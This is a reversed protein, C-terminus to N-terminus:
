FQRGLVRGVFADLGRKGGGPVVLVRDDVEIWETRARDFEFMFKRGAGEGDDVQEAEQIGEDDLSFIEDNRILPPDISIVRAIARISAIYVVVSSGPVLSNAEGGLNATFGAYARPWANAGSSPRRNFIVMGKRLKTSFFPPTVTPCNAFEVAKAGNAPTNSFDDQIRIGNGNESGTEGGLGSLHLQLNMVSAALFTDLYPEQQIPVVGLTGAEGAFLTNVPLRLRRVSVVKVLKWECEEGCMDSHGTDDDHTIKAGLRKPPAARMEDASDLSKSLLGSLNGVSPSLLPHSTPTAPTGEMSPPGSTRDAPPFPGILLEDDITIKGYKVHGGVVAGGNGDGSSHAPQFGYIEELHFLTSLGGAEETAVGHDGESKRVKWVAKRVGTLSNGSLPEPINGVVPAKPPEPVPLRMMLEHLLDVGQGNVSSTFLIPVTHEPDDEVLKVADGVSAITSLAVPKRRNQKLITLLNGFVKKLGTKTGLDRKTFIVVMRLGLKLCLDLHALSPKSLGSPREENGGTDLTEDDNAAVLFAAYHPAWGILSKFTTRSFKPNGASDSLFVIRGGDAAAHIDTWSSINGSAYNVLRSPGGNCNTPEPKAKSDEPMYGLIEWTVSSTIGSVLEHRHRLLSIRSKGRGNDLEGTSLTGLLTTKGCATAGTLTIRLQKTKGRIEIRAANQEPTPMGSVSNQGHGPQVFAEVVWLPDGVKPVGFSEESGPFGEEEVGREDGPLMVKESRERSRQKSRMLEAQKGETRRLDWETVTGVAERRLVRVTCGLKAAMLRLTDLSAQLEEECLGILKGDDAVGIEYLAGQSEQVLSTIAEPSKSALSNAHYPSSQQLRWLLQTVLQDLRAESKGGRVLSLKYETAGMQPEAALGRVTEGSVTAVGGRESDGVFHNRIKGSNNNIRLHGPTDHTILDLSGTAPKPTTSPTPHAPTNNAWPSAPKPPSPNFTFISSM